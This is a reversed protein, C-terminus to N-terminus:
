RVSQKAEKYPRNCSKRHQTRGATKPKLYSHHMYDGGCYEPKFEEYDGYKELLETTLERGDITKLLFGKEDHIHLLDCWLLPPNNFQEIPTGAKAKRASIHYEVIERLTM